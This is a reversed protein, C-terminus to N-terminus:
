ISLMLVEQSQLVTGTLLSESRFQFDDAFTTVAYATSNQSSIEVVNGADVM